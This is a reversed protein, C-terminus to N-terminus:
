SQHKAARQPVDVIADKMPFDSIKELEVGTGPPKGREIDGITGNLQAGTKQDEVHPSCTLAGISGLNISVPPNKRGVYPTSTAVANRTAIQNVALSALFTPNFGSVTVFRAM